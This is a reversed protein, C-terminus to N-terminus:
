KQAGSWHRVMSSPKTGHGGTLKDGVGSSSLSFEGLLRMPLTGIRVMPALHLGDGYPLTSTSAVPTTDVATSPSLRARKSPPSSPSSPTPPSHPRSHSSSMTRLHQEISTTCSLLRRLVMCQLSVALPLRYSPASKFEAEARESSSAEKLDVVVKGM